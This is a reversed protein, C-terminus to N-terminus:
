HRLEWGLDTLAKSMDIQNYINNNMTIAPALAGSLQNNPTVQSGRPLNVLEPGREGVIAAGGAFNQTGKALMPITNINTYGKVKGAISNAGSILFNIASIVANVRSRVENVIAALIGFVTNKIGTWVTGWTMGMSKLALTMLDFTNKLPAWFTGLFWGVFAGLLPKIIFNWVNMFVQGLITLVAGIFTFVAQLTPMVYTMFWDVVAMTIDKIGLFNTNWALYLLAVAAGIALVAITFPTFITGLLLGFAGILGYIAPILLAIITGAIIPILGQNQNLFDMVQKGVVQFREFAPVIGASIASVLPGLITAVMGGIKEKIEGIQNNMIDMRGSFTKGGAEAFGGFNQGMIQTLTSAREAETGFKFVAKQEETMIVGMKKLGSAMGDIGEDAGGMVKGFMVAVQSMDMTEGTTKRFAEAMDLMSPTLTKITKTELMFTTLMAQGSTIMEDSFRTVKQLQSAQDGLVRLGTTLEQATDTNNKLGATLRAVADEQASFDKIFSVALAGAAVAVAGLGLAIMQSGRVTKESFAGIRKEAEDIGKSDADTTIKVKVDNLVPM